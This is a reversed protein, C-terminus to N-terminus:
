VGLFGIKGKIIDYFVYFGRVDEVLGGCLLINMDGDQSGLVRDKGLEISM